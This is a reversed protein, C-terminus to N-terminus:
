HDPEVILASQAGGHAAHILDVMEGAGCRFTPAAVEELCINFTCSRERLDCFACVNFSDDIEAM